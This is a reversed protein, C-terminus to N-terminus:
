LRNEQIALCWVRRTKEHAQPQEKKTEKILEKERGEKNSFCKSEKRPVRKSMSFRKNSWLSRDVGIFSNIVSACSEWTKIELVSSGEWM